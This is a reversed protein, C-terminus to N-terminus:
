NRLPQDFDSPDRDVTYIGDGEIGVGVVVTRSRCVEPDGSPGLVYAKIDSCPLSSFQVGAPVGSRFQIGPPFHEQIITATRTALHTVAPASFRGRGRAKSIAALSAPM